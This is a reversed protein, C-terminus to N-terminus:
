TSRTKQASTHAAVLGEVPGTEACALVGASAAHFAERKQLVDLVLNLDILDVFREIPLEAM